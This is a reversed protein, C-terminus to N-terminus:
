GLLVDLWLMVLFGTIFGLSALWEHGKRHTEPLIEHSVVYIMAGASLALTLPLLSVSRSSILAIIVAMVTESLGSLVGIAIPLGIKRNVMVLPYVVAFGEPMDQLGIALAMLLGNELGQVASAGVAMGEPLNHILIAIVILWIKRLRRALTEPGEYGKILHEHPLIRDLVIILVIGALFGLTAITIGGIEISPLLLSTFSAVLMVGASFGLGADLHKERGLLGIAGFLGGISTLTAPILSLVFARTALGHGALGHLMSELMDTSRAEQESM